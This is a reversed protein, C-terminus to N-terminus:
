RLEMIALYNGTGDHSVTDLRWPSDRVLEALESESRFVYDFWSTAENRHRVRLRLHGPLRDRERNRQHYALHSPNETEYPDIGSAIIRAGPAAVRACEGLVVAAQGADGLLGLNNGLLLIVDVDDIGAPFSSASGCQADVGRARAVEVAGHSQDIGTVQRGAEALVSAHRGAGCGIDLVRGTIEAYVQRELLSWGSLSAFYGVADGAGLWGDDREVVEFATGPQEGAEHCERLVAGFADGVVPYQM